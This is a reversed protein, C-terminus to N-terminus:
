PSEFIMDGGFQAAASSDLNLRQSERTGDPLRKVATLSDPRAFVGTVEVVGDPLEIRNGAVIRRQEGTAEILVEAVPQQTWAPRATSLHLRRNERADWVEAEAVIERLPMSDPVLLQERRIALARLELELDGFQHGSRAVVGEGTVENAFIGLPDEPTGAYGVLQLRYPQREVRLLRLGFPQTLPAEAVEVVAPAAVSFRGTAPDYFIVPPTFVDFGWADADDNSPPATWLRSAVAAPVMVRHEENLAGALETRVGTRVARVAQEQWLLWAFAVALVVGAGALAWQDPSKLIRKM